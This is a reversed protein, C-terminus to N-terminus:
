TTEPEAATAAEQLHTEGRRRPSSLSQSKAESETFSSRLGRLGGMVFKKFGM